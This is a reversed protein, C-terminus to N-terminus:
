LNWLVEDSNSKTSFIAFLNIQGATDCVSNKSFISNPLTHQEDNFFSKGFQACFLPDIMKDFSITLFM